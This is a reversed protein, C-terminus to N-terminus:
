SLCRGSVNAMVPTTVPSFSSECGIPLKDKSKARHPLVHVPIVPIQKMSGNRPEEAGDTQEKREDLGRGDLAPKRHDKIVVTTQVTPLAFFYIMGDFSAKPADIRDAKQAPSIALWRADFSTSQALSKAPLALYAASGAALLGGAACIAKRWM